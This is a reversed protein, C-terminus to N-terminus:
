TDFQLQYTTEVKSGDKFVITTPIEFIGWGLMTLRFQSQRDRVIRNRPHFTEHLEYHVADIQDLVASEADVFISWQYTDGDDYVQEDALRTEEIIIEEGNEVREQLMDAMENRRSMQLAQWFDEISNVFDPELAIAQGVLNNAQALEGKLYARIARGIIVNVEEQQFEESNVYLQLAELLDRMGGEFDGQFDVFQLNLLRLPLQGALLIPIRPKKLQEARITERAVWESDNSKPTVVVIFVECDALATEIAKEWALGGELEERDIWIDFFKELSDALQLAFDRDKSSYSIFIHAM